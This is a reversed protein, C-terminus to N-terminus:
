ESSDGQKNLDMEKNDKIRKKTQRSGHGQKHSVTKSRADVMAVMSIFSNSIELYVSFRELYCLGQTNLSTEKHIGKKNTLFM